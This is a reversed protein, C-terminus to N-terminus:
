RVFFMLGTKTMSLVTGTGAFHVDDKIAASSASSGYQKNYRALTGNLYLAQVQYASKGALEMQGDLEVTGTWDADGALVVKGAKVALTGASTSAGDKLVLTGPGNWTLSAQDTFAMTNTVTGSGGLVLTGTGGFMPQGQNIDGCTMAASLNVTGNLLIPNAATAYRFDVTMDVDSLDPATGSGWNNGNTLDGDNAAGTWIASAAHAAVTVTGNYGDGGLWAVETAGGIGAGVRCYVGAPVDVGGDVVQAAKIDTGTEVRLYGTTRGNFDLRVGEKLATTAGVYAIGAGKLGIGALNPFAAQSLDCGAWDSVIWGTTTGGKFLVDGAKSANGKNLVLSVEGDLSEITRNPGEGNYIAGATLTAPGRTSTISGELKYGDKPSRLLRYISQDYGNLDFVEDTNDIGSTTYFGVDKGQLVNKAGCVIRDTNYLLIGSSSSTVFPTNLCITVKDGAYKKSTGLERTWGEFGGNLTVSFNSLPKADSGYAYFMPRATHKRSDCKLKGNVVFAPQCDASYYDKGYVGELYMPKNDATESVFTVDGNLTVEQYAFIYCDHLFIPNNYTSRYRVDLAGYFHVPTEYAGFPYALDGAMVKVSGEKDTFTGTFDPSSVYLNFDGAGEKVVDGSGLFAGPTKLSVSCKNLTRLALKAGDGVEIRVRITATVAKGASDLDCVIESKTGTLTLRFTEKSNFTTGLTNTYFFNELELNKNLRHTTKNQEVFVVTDGNMPVDGDKWNGADTWMLENGLTADPTGQGTWVCTKASVAPSFMGVAFATVMLGAMKRRITM